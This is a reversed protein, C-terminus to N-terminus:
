IRSTDNKIGANTKMADDNRRLGKLKTCVAVSPKIVFRHKRKQLTENATLDQGNEVKHSM